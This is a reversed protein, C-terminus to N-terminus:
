TAVRYLRWREPVGKLDHEGGDEFRLGSGAVLDRVTSSVVIESPGAVSMVRAGIHVAIGRVDGRSVEVEGTHVGARIELGLSRVADIMAQACRVARAPGDFIAFFGDGATDIERGRYSALEARVVAHHSALLEKWRADGLEAARETSGVVDTFV